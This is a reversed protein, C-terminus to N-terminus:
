QVLDANFAAKGQEILDGCDYANIIDKMVASWSSNRKIIDPNKSSENKHYEIDKITNRIVDHLNILSTKIYHIGWQELEAYPLWDGVILVNGSFLSEQISASFGDTIQINVVIDSLLRLEALEDESLYNRIIKYKIGAKELQLNVETFYNANGGYTMPFLLYIDDKIGNPLKALADIIKLHQQGESGNYACTIIIKCDPIGLRSKVDDRNFTEKKKEIVDIFGLGLRATCIQGAYSPFHKLFYNLMGRVLVVRYCKDLVRSIKKKTEENSRYLDSGWWHVIIKETKKSLLDIYKLYGPDMFHIVVIDGANVQEKIFLRGYYSRIYARIRPIKYLINLLPGSHLDEVLGNSKRRKAAFVDINLTPINHNELNAILQAMVVSGSVSSSLLIIKNKM